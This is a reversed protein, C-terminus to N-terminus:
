LLSRLVDMTQAGHKQRIKRLLQKVENDTESFPITGNKKAKVSGKALFRRVTRVGPWQGNANKPRLAEVVKRQEDESLRAIELAAEFGLKESIWADRLEVTLGPRGFRLGLVAKYRSLAHAPIGGLELRLEHDTFNGVREYNWGFEFYGALPVQRRIFGFAVAKKTASAEADLLCSRARQIEESVAESIERVYCHVASVGAQKAAWAHLLGFVVEFTNNRPRVIIRPGYYIAAVKNETQTASAQRSGRSRAAKRFLEVLSEIDKQAKSIQCADPEAFHLEATNISRKSREWSELEQRGRQEAAAQEGLSM